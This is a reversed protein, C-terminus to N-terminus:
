GKKEKRKNKLDLIMGYVLGAFIIEPFIGILLLALAIKNPIGVTVALYVRTLGFVTALSYGNKRSSFLVASLVGGLIGIILTASITPALIAQVYLLVMADITELKDFSESLLRGFFVEFFLAMYIIIISLLANGIYKVIKESKM